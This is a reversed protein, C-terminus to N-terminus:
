SSAFITHFGYLGDSQHGDAADPRPQHRAQRQGRARPDLRQQPHEHGQHHGHDRQHEPCQVDDTCSNDKCYAGTAVTICVENAKCALSKCDNPVCVAKGGQAQCHQEKPCIGPLACPGPGADPNSADAGADVVIGAGSGGGGAVGAAGGGGGAGGIGDGRVVEPDGGCAAAFCFGVWGAFGLGLHCRSM